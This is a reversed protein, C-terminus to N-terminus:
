AIGSPSMGAAFNGQPRGDSAQLKTVTNASFNTIWMSGGDFAAQGAGSGVAFTATQNSRYWHLIAVQNPNTAVSPQAIAASTFVIACTSLLLAKVNRASLRQM